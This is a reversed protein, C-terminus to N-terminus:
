QKVVPLEDIERDIKKLLTMVRDVPCEIECKTCCYDDYGPVSYSNSWFRCATFLRERM